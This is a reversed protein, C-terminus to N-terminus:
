RVIDFTGHNGNHQPTWSGVGIHFGALKLLNVIQDATILSANYRIFLDCSWDHFEPRWIPRPSRRMGSDRGMAQNITQTKYKLPIIDGVVIISRALKKDMGDLYPASEVMANKFAIAPFGVKGDSTYHIKERMEEEFDKITNKDRGKGQMLSTLNDKVKDSMKSMLLSATGKVGIRISQIDIPKAEVKVQKKKIEKKM